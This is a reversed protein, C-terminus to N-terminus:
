KCPAAGGAIYPSDIFDTCAWETRPLLTLSTKSAPNLGMRVGFRFTGPGSSAKMQESKIMRGNVHLTVLVSTVTREITLGFKDGESIIHPVCGSTGSKHEAHIQFRVPGEPVTAWDANFPVQDNHKFVIFTLNYWGEVNAIRMECHSAGTHEHHAPGVVALHYNSAPNVAIASSRRGSQGRGHAITDGSLDLDFFNYGHSTDDSVGIVISDDRVPVAVPLTAFVSAM